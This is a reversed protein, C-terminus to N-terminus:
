CGSLKILAIMNFTGSSVISTWFEIGDFFDDVDQVGKEPKKFGM